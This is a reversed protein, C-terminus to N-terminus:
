QGPARSNANPQEILREPSHSLRRAADTNPYNQQIEKYLKQATADDGLTRSRAAVRDLVQASLEPFEKQFRAPVALAQVAALAFEASNQSALGRAALWYMAVAQVEAPWDRSEALQAALDHKVVGKTSELKWRLAKSWPISRKAVLDIWAAAQDAKGAEIAIASLYVLAALPLSDVDCNEVLQEVSPWIRVADVTSDWIPMLRPHLTTNPDAPLHVKAPVQDRWAPHESLLDLAGVWVIAASMSDGQEIHYSMTALRILLATQSRRKHLEDPLEGVAQQAGVFDGIELRWRLRALPEGISQLWEDVRDQDAVAVTAKAVRDWTITDGNELQVGDQDYRAVPSAPISFDRLVITSQGLAADRAGQGIALAVFVIVASSRRSWNM